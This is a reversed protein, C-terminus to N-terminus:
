HCDAAGSSGDIDLGKEEADMADSKAMLKRFIEHFSPRKAALDVGTLGDYADPPLESVKLSAAVSRGEERVIARLDGRFMTPLETVFREPEKQPEIDFAGQMDMWDRCRLVPQKILQLGYGTATLKGNEFAVSGIVRCKGKEITYLDVIV